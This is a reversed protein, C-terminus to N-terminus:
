DTTNAASNINSNLDVTIASEMARFVFFSLTGVVLIILAAIIAAKLRM